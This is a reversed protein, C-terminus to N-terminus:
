RCGRSEQVRCCAPSHPDTTCTQTGCGAPDPRSRGDVKGRVAAVVDAPADAAFRIREVPGTRGDVTWHQPPDLQLEVDTQQGSAVVLVGDVLEVAQGAEHRRRGVTTVVHLPVDVTLRSGARLRLHHDTLLHPRVATDALVALLLVISAVGAVLLVLRVAPWPLLLHVAATEVLSAALMAWSTVRADRGYSFAVAGDPVDTRRRVWLLLSSLLSPLRSM